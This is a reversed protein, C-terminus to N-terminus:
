RETAKLLFLFRGILGLFLLVSLVVAVIFVQFLLVWYSYIYESATIVLLLLITIYTLLGFGLVKRLLAHRNKTIAEKIDSSIDEWIQILAKKINTPIHM